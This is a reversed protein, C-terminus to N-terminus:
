RMHNSKLLCVEWNRNNGGVCMQSCTHNQVTRVLPFFDNTHFTENMRRWNLFPFRSKYRRKMIQRNDDEVNVSLHTTAQITKRIVYDPALALCNKWQEIPANSCHKSDNKRRPRKMISEKDPRHETPSALIVPIMTDLEQSTPKRM